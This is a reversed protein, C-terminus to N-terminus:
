CAPSWSGTSSKYAWGSANKKSPPNSPRGGSASPRNNLKDEPNSKFHRRIAADGGFGINRTYRPSIMLKTKEDRGEAGVYEDKTDRIKGGM